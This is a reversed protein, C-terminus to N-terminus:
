RSCAPGAIRYRHRAVWRYLRPAVFAAGPLRFLFALRRWGRLRRLIEPIARAAALVRGDPLVLQMAELCTEDTMWPFRARREASRCPLFEFRGPLARREVWRMGGQCIPCDGDYILVALDDAKM